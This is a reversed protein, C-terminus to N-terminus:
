GSDRSPKRSAQSQGDKEYLAKMTAVKIVFISAILVAFGVPLVALGLFIMIPTTTTSQVYSELSALLGLLGLLFGSVLAGVCVKIATRRFAVPDVQKARRSGETFRNWPIGWSLASLLLLGVGFATLWDLILLIHEKRNATMAVM